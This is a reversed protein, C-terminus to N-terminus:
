PRTATNVRSVFSGLAVLLRDHLETLREPTVTLASEDFWPPALYLSRNMEIQIWALAGQGHARTIFGGRFPKNLAVDALPLDYAEAISTRLAALVDESCTEGNGNSLCFLPRPEADPAVVPPTEAMSHCDLAAVLGDDAGDRALADHYPRWYSSILTEALEDDLPTGGPVLDPPRLM